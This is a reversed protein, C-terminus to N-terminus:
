SYDGLFDFLLDCVELMMPYVNGDLIDYHLFVPGFVLKDFELSWMEMDSTM